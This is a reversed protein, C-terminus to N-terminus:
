PRRHSAGIVPASSQRRHSVGIQTSDLSFPARCMSQRHKRLVLSRVQALGLAARQGANKHKSKDIKHFSLGSGAPSMQFDFPTTKVAKQEDGTLRALSETFTHAIRFNV